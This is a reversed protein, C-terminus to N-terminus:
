FYYFILNSYLVFIRLKGDNMRELAARFNEDEYFDKGAYANLLDHKGNIGKRINVTVTESLGVCAGFHIPTNVKRIM